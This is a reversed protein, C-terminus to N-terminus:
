IKFRTTKTDLSWWEHNKTEYTKLQKDLSKANSPFSSSNPVHFIELDNLRVSNKVQLQRNFADIASLSENLMCAFDKQLDKHINNRKKM